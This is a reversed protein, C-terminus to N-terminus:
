EVHFPGATVLARKPDSEESRKGIITDGSSAVTHASCSRTCRSMNDVGCVIVSCHLYVSQGHHQSFFRTLLAFRDQALVSAGYATKCGNKIVLQGSSADTADKSRTIRCDDIGVRLNPDTSDVGINGFLNRGKGISITAGNNVMKTFTPDSFMKLSVDFNISKENEVAFSYSDSVVDYSVYERYSKLNYTCRHTLVVESFYQVLSTLTSAYVLSNTFVINDEEVEVEAGCGTLPINYILHEREAIRTFGSCNESLPQLDELELGLTILTSQNVTIIMEQAACELHINDSPYEVIHSGRLDDANVIL